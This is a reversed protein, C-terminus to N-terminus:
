ATSPVSLEVVSLPAYKAGHFVTFATLTIRASTLVALAALTRFLKLQTKNM